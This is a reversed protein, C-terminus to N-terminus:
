NSPNLVVPQPNTNLFISEYHEPKIRRMKKFTESIIIFEHKSGGSSFKLENGNFSFDSAILRGDRYVGEQKITYSDRMYPAVNQEVWHGYIHKRLEKQEANYQNLVHYLGVGVGVILTGLLLGAKLYYSMDQRGGQWLKSMASSMM